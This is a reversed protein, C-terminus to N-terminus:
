VIIMGLVLENKIQRTTKIWNLNRKCCMRQKTFVQQDVCYVIETNHSSTIEDACSLSLCVLNLWNHPHTM